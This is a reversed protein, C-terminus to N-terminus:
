EARGLHRRPTGPRPKGRRPRQREPQRRRAHRRAIAIITFQRGGEDRYRLPRVDGEIMGRFGDKFGFVDTDAQLVLSKTVARIVANLGPCDGGGTLLGINMFLQLHSPNLTLLLSAQTKLVTGAGRKGECRGEKM